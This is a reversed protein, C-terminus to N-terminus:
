PHQWLKIYGARATVVTGRAYRLWEEPRRGRPIGWGGQIRDQGEIGKHGGRYRRRDWERRRRRQRERKRKRAKGRERERKRERKGEWRGRIRPNRVYRGWRHGCYSPPISKFTCEHKWLATDTGVNLSVRRRAVERARGEGEVGRLGQCAAYVVGLMSQLSAAMLVSVLWVARQNGTM